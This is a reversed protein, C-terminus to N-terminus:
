SENNDSDGREGDDQLAEEPHVKGIMVPWAEEKSLTALQVDEHWLEFTDKDVRKVTYDKAKARTSNEQSM